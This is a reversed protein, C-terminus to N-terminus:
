TVKQVKPGLDIGHDMRYAIAPWFIETWIHYLNGNKDLNYMRKGWAEKDPNAADWKPDIGKFTDYAYNTCEQVTMSAVRVGLFNCLCLQDKCKKPPHTFKVKKM